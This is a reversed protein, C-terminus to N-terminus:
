QERSSEQPTWQAGLFVLLLAGAILGIFPHLYWGLATGGLFLGIAVSRWILLAVGYFAREPWDLLKM